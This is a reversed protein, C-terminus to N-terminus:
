IGCVGDVTGTIVEDDCPTTNRPTLNDNSVSVVVNLTSIGVLESNIVFIFVLLKVLLVPTPLISILVTYFGRVTPVLSVVTLNPVPCM